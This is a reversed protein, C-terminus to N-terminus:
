GEASRGRKTGTPWSRRRRVTSSISPGSRPGPRSGLIPQYAPLEHAFAIAAIGIAPPANNVPAATFAAQIGTASVARAAVISLQIVQAREADRPPNGGAQVVPMTKNVYPIYANRFDMLDRILEDYDAPSLQEGFRRPVVAM